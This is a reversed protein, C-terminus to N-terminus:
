PQQPLGSVRACYSPGDVRLRRGHKISAVLPPRGPSSRVLKYLASRTLDTVPCKGTAPIEWNAPLPIRCGGFAVCRACIAPLTGPPLQRAIPSPGAPSPPPTTNTTSATAGVLAKASPSSPPPILLAAKHTRPLNPLSPAPGSERKFLRILSKLHNAVTIPKRRDWVAAHWPNFDARVVASLPGSAKPGLTELFLDFHRKVSERRAASYQTLLDAVAQEVSRAVPPQVPTTTNM